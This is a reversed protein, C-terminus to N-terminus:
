ADVIVCGNDTIRYGPMVNGQDDMVGAKVRVEHLGTFYNRSLSYARQLVDDPVLGRFAELGLHDTGVSIHLIIEVSVEHGSGPWRLTGIVDCLAPFGNGRLIELLVSKLPSKGKSVKAEIASLRRRLTTIM